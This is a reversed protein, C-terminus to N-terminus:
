KNIICVKEEGTTTLRDSSILRALQDCNLSLFEETQILESFYILNLCNDIILYRFHQETFTNAAKLLQDCDHLEAFAFIGLCNTPHLQAKLFDCCANRVETL